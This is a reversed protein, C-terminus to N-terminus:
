KPRMAKARIRRLAIAPHTCLWFWHKWSSITEKRKLLAIDKRYYGM